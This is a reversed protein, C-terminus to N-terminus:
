REIKEYRDDERNALRQRVVVAFVGLVGIAVALVPLLLGGTQIVGFVLAGLYVVAGLVALAAVAYLVIDDIKM